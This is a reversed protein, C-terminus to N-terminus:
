ELGELDALDKFRGVAKKNKKFDELNLFSIKLEDIFEEIRNKYSEEFNLADVSTILAIM